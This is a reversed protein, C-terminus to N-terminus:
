KRREIIRAVIVGIEYLVLLPVAMVLQSFADPGPTLAAAAIFIIVVAFRRQRRLTAAQLMGAQVLFAIVLPLEFVLGFSLVMGSVFALYKSVTIMPVLADSGYALLFSVGVPIILFYCFAAGSVFLLLSVATLPLVLRKERPLLGKQIFSWVQFLVVPLSVVLGLLLSLKLKAWLAELPGIFVLKGIPRAMDAIVADTFPYVAISCVAVAAAAWTLRRRLEGLHALLPLPDDPQSPYM